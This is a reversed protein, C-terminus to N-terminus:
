LKRGCLLFATCAAFFRGASSVVQLDQLWKGGASGSVLGSETARAVTGELALIVNAQAYDTLTITFPVIAIDTLGADKFLGLAQRGMWGNRYNDCNVHLLARTLERDRSDVVATDFDPDMTVIRAVSRAVRVMEALVRAPDEVHHLVRDARCGDFTDDSFGLAHANGVEFTIPLESGDARTRAEAIMTESRDVGVVRGTPGVRKALAQVDDGNGCGVDLLAHGQDPELMDFTRQKYAQAGEMVSITQLLRAFHAPEAARDVDTFENRLDSTAM